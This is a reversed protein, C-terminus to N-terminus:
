GGTAAVWAVAARFLDHAGSLSLKERIRLAYSEVTRVSLNLELAIEKPRHGLGVLRFLELERPSLVVLPSGRRPESGGKLKQLLAETVRPSVFVEDALVKRIALMLTAGPERKSIYGHAGAQIAAEACMAEPLASLVLLPVQRFRSKILRVIEAGHRDKLTLETIVIDPELKAITEVADEFNNAQGCVKLGAEAGVVRGIWEAVMPHEDVIVVRRKRRRTPPTDRSGAPRVRVRVPLAPRPSHHISSSARPNSNTRPMPTPFDRRNQRRSGGTKEQPVRIPAIPPLSEYWFTGAEMLCKPRIPELPKKM